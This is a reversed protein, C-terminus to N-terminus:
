FRYIVKLSAYALNKGPPTSQRLFAGAEYYTGLAEWAIHRDMQWRIALDQLSGVYLSEHEDGSRLFFGPQSYIGDAGSTRWFSFHSATVSITPSVTVSVEPHIVTANPSGTSDIYGYYLGRPFLPNFTQLDSAAPSKDGSATAVLLSVVPRLPRSRFSWSLSQAVKWARIDGAGFRGFQVDAEWFASFAGAQAHLLAGLTHREERAVGQQFRASQRYLGLYYIDLQRLFSWGEMPRTAWTGWLAQSTDFGDDFTGPKLLTPRFALVDIRWDGPRGIVKVGDFVRRVNLERIALLTGEGYNIEQRGLKLELKPHGGAQILTVAAFVQSVDLEDKDQSPRPGGNRGLVIGSQLEFFVRAREGLHLDASGLFRQLYYGNEDQSGAGWNYNHYYEYFLRLSGAFTLYVDERGLPIYKVPDWPDGRRSPDRLFRWDEESRDLSYQPRDLPAQEAAPPAPPTASPLATPAFGLAALLLMVGIM